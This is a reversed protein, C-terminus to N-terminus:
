PKYGKEEAPCEVNKRPYYIWTIIAGILALAATVLFTARNANIFDPYTSPMLNDTSGMLILVQTM